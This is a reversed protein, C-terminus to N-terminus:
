SVLFTQLEAADVEWQRSAEEDLFQGMGHVLETNAQQVEERVEELTKVTEALEPCDKLLQDFDAQAKLVKEKLKRLEEAARSPRPIM